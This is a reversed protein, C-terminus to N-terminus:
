GLGPPADPKISLEPMPYTKWVELLVDISLQNHYSANSVPDKRGSQPTAQLATWSRGSITTVNM